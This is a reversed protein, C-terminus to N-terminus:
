EADSLLRIVARGKAEYTGCEISGRVVPLLKTTAEDARKLRVSSPRCVLSPCRLSVLVAELMPRGAITNSVQLLTEYKQTANTDLEM